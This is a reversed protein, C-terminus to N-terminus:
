IILKVYSRLSIDAKYIHSCDNTSYKREGKITHSMIQGTQTFPFFCAAKLYLLSEHLIDIFNKVNGMVICDGEPLPIDHKDLLTLYALYDLFDVFICCTSSRHGVVRPIYTIGHRRVTFPSNYLQGCYFEMGGSVNRIGVGKYIVNLATVEVSKLCPPLHSCSIGEECLLAIGHQDLPQERFVSANALRNQISPITM